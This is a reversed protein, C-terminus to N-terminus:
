PGHGVQGALAAEVRPHRDDRGPQADVAVAAAAAGDWHRLDIEPRHVGVVVLDEGLAVPGVGARGGARASRGGGSAALTADTATPTPPAAMRPAPGIAVTGTGAAAGM